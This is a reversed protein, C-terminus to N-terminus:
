STGTSASYAQVPYLGTRPSGVGHGQAELPSHLFRVMESRARRGEPLREMIWNHFMGPYEHMAIPTGANTANRQLNRADALLLDRTGIFVATPALGTLDGRVPSVAPDDPASGDAFWRGAQRLGEIGLVPDDPEIQEALPDDVALDLWPSLLVLRAPQPEDDNRLSQAVILALAGGASDGTLVRDHAACPGLFKDYSRRAMTAVTHRGHAPALPYMPFTLSCGLTEVIWRAFWWHHHEVQEVFGGGHLHLVHMGTRAGGRPRLTWCPCGDVQSEEVDLARRIWAPPRCRRPDQRRRLMARMARPDSYFRKTRRMRRIGIAARAQWSVREGGETSRSRDHPWWTPRARRAPQRVARGDPGSHM